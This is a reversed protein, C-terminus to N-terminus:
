RDSLTSAFFAEIARRADAHDAIIANHDAGHILTRTVAVGAARASAEIAESHRPHVISDGAGHVLLLPRGGLRGALDVPDMGRAILLPGLLPVHDGAVGRWTAFPSVACVARVESRRAAVELAPAAGLSVGYLGVRRADV